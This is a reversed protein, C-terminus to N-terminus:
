ESDAVVWGAVAVAGDLAGEQGQAEEPQDRAM